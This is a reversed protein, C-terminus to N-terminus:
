YFIMNFSCNFSQQSALTIIGIKNKFNYDSTEGDAIGHWPELCIFHESNKKTWIGFFPWNSCEMTIGHSTKESVLSLQEIQSNM